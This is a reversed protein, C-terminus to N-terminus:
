GNLNQILNDQNLDKNSNWFDYSVAWQSVPTSMTTVWHTSHKLNTNEIGLHISHICQEFGICVLRWDELILRRHCSGDAPFAREKKAYLVGDQSKLFHLVHQIWLLSFQYSKAILYDALAKWSITQLYLTGNSQPPSKSPSILASTGPHLPWVSLGKVVM